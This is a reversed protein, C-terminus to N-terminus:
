RTWSRLTSRWRPSPHASTARSAPPRCAIPVSASASAASAASSSTSTPPSSRTPPTRAHSAESPNSTPRARATGRSSPLVCSCCRRLQRDVLRLYHLGIGAQGLFLSPDDGRGHAGCPWPRGALEYKTAARLAWEEAVRAADDHGMIEVRAADGGSPGSGGHCLSADGDRNTSRELATRTTSLAVEAEGAYSPHGLVQHARMHTLAVGPAGYCWAVMFSPVYPPVAPAERRARTPDRRWDAELAWLQAHRYDPWNAHAADFHAREYAFGQVAAFRYREAGTAAYLEALAQAIGGSGHALGPLDHASMTAAQWSWGAASRHANAIIADGARRALELTQSDDGTPVALLGLVTGAAGGLVDM